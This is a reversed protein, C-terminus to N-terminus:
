DPPTGKQLRQEGNAGCFDALIRKYGPLTTTPICCVQVVKRPIAPVGLFDAFAQSKQKV